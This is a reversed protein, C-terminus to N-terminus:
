DNQLSKIMPVKRLSKVVSITAPQAPVDNVIEDVIGLYTEFCKPIEYLVPADGNSEAAARCQGRTRPNGQVLRPNNSDVSISVASECRSTAAISIYCGLAIGAGFRPHLDEGLKDLKRQRVKEGTHSVIENKRVCISDLQESVFVM